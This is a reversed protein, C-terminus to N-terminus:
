QPRQDLLVRMQEPGYSAAQKYTKHLARNFGIYPHDFGDVGEVPHWLHCVFGGDVREPPGYLSTLATAFADDEYGWGIFREDYGGVEEFAKRPVVVTGSIVYDLAHEYEEPEPEMLLDFTDCRLIAETADETLNYYMTYPLAWGNDALIEAALLYDPNWITDADCFVLTDGQAFSAGSNRAKSRSFEGENDGIFIEWDPFYTMIRGLTIEFLEERIPDDSRFPIICSVSM